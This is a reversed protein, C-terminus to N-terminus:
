EVIIKYVEVEILDYVKVKNNSPLNKSGKDYHKNIDNAWHKISKMSNMGYYGFDNTHPGHSRNCLISGDNRIKIYKHNKNLNFIFTNMDYKWKEGFFPSEWSLPTYIGIINGDNVHFLTLTAKDDCLKHFTSFEGGNESLRYLLEAKIKKFSKDM